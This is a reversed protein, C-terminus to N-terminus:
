RALIDPRPYVTGNIEVDFTPWDGALSLIEPGDDRCLIIDESKTGTISPNWAFGQSAKAVTPDGPTAPFIAAPAARTTCSGNTPTASKAMCASAPM